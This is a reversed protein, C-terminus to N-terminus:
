TALASHWVGGSSMESPQTKTVIFQAGCLAGFKQDSIQWSNRLNKLGAISLFFAPRM